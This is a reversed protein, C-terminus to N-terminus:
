MFFMQKHKHTIAETVPICIGAVHKSSVKIIDRAAADREAHHPHSEAAVDSLAWKYFHLSPMRQHRPDRQLMKVTSHSMCHVTSRFGEMRWLLSTAAHQHPLRFVVVVSGAGTEMKYEQRYPSCNERSLSSM